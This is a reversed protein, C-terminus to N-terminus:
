MDYKVAVLKCHENGRAKGDDRIKIKILLYSNFTKCCPTRVGCVLRVRRARLLM